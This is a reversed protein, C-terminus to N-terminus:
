IYEPVESEFLLAERRRGGAILRFAAESDGDRMSTGAPTGEMGGERTGPTRTSPSAADTTSRDVRISSGSTGYTPFCYHLAKM